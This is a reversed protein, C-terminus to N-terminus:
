SRGPWWCSPLPCPSPDAVCTTHCSCEEVTILTWKGYPGVAAAVIAIASANFSKRASDLMEDM